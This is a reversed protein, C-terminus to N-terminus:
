REMQYGARQWALMGGNLIHLRTYGARSLTGAAAMARQGSRCIVYVPTDKLKAIDGAQAAVRGSPINRAGKIHGLTSSFESPERVDIMVPRAGSALVDHLARADVMSVGASQLARMKLRGSIYMGAAVIALGILIQTLMAPKNRLELRCDLAAYQCPLLARKAAHQAGPICM